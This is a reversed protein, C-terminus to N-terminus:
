VGLRVPRRVPAEDRYTILQERGAGTPRSLRVMSPQNGVAPTM